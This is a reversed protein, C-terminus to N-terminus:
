NVRVAEGLNSAVELVRNLGVRRNNRHREESSNVQHPVRGGVRRNNRNGEELSIVELARSHGVRPNNLSHQNRPHAPLRM